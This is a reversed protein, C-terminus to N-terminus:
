DAKGFKCVVSDTPWEAIAMNKGMQPRTCKDYKLNESDVGWGVRRLQEDIIFRTEKESLNINHSVRGAHKKLESKYSHNGYIQMFWISLTHMMQLLTKCDESSDYEEHVALNRKKRLAYLIDDMERNLIGEYRLKKIKNAFSNEEHLLQPLGNLEYMYNVITEAFSGMKYLCSNLDTYLYNEALIGIKELTPFKDALFSFKSSM